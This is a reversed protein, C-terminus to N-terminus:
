KKKIENEQRTIALERELERIRADTPSLHGTGPFAEVGDRELEVRWHRIAGQYLGLEREIEGVRKGSTDALEVAQRKFDADYLRRPKVAM